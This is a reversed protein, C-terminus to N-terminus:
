QIKERKNKQSLEGKAAVLGAALDVRRKKAQAVGSMSCHARIPPLIQHQRLHPLEVPSQVPFARRFSTESSGCEVVCRQHCKEGSPTPANVTETEIATSVLRSKGSAAFYFRIGLAAWCHGPATNISVNRSEVSRPATPTSWTSPALSM